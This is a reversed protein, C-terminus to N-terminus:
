CKDDKCDAASKFCKSRVQCTCTTKFPNTSSWDSKCNTKVSCTVPTSGECEAYAIPISIGFILAAIYLKQFIQRNTSKDSM